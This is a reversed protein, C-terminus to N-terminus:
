RWARRKSPPWWYKMQGNNREVIQGDVEVRQIRDEDRYQVVKKLYYDRQREPVFVTAAIM